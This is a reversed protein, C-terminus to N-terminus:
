DLKQWHFIIVDIKIYQHNIEDNPFKKGAIQNTNEEEGGGGEM